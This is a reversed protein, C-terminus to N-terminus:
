NISINIKQGNNNSMKSHCSKNTRYSKNQDLDDFKIKNTIKSNNVSKRDEVDLFGSRELM